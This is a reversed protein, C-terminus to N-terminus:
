IRHVGNSKAFSTRWSNKKLKSFSRTSKIFYLDSNKNTIVLNISLVFVNQM